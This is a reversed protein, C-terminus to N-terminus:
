SSKRTTDLFKIRDLMTEYDNLVAQVYYLTNFSLVLESALISQYAHLEGQEYARLEIAESNSKAKASELLTTIQKYITNSQELLKIKDLM